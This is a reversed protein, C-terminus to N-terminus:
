FILHNSVNTGTRFPAPLECKYAGIEKACPLTHVLTGSVRVNACAGCGMTGNNSVIVTVTEMDSSGVIYLHTRGSKGSWLLEVSYEPECPVGGCNCQPQTEKTLSSQPSITVWTNKFEKVTKIDEMLSVTTNVKCSFCSTILYDRCYRHMTGNIDTPKDTLVIEYTKGNNDSKFTAKDGTLENKVLLRMTIKKPEKPKEITVCSAFGFETNTNTAYDTFESTVNVTIARIGRYMTVTSEEPAGVALEDSGNDNYDAVPQLSFGFSQSKEIRQTRALESVSITVRKSKINEHIAYGCIIYLVGGSKEFPASVIIEPYSDGNVDNTSLTTGFRSGSKVGWITLMLDMEVTENDFPNISKSYIHTAGTDYDAAWRHQAPAGVILDAHGDRTVDASSLAAGFMSGVSETRDNLRRPCDFGPAFAHLADNSFFDIYGKEMGISNVSFAYCIKNESFYDGFTIAQGYTTALSLEQPKFCESYNEAKLTQSCLAAKNEFLQSIIVRDNDDVLTSWGGGGEVWLASISINSNLSWPKPTKEINDYIFCVGFAASTKTHLDINGFYATRLPACVVFGNKKAAISAGLYFHQDPHVTRNSIGKFDIHVPDNCKKNKIDKVSCHYVKGDTNYLPAGIVLRADDRQYGLSFGYASNIKDDKLDVASLEHYFLAAALHASLLLACASRFM